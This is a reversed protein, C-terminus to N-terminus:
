HRCLRESDKRRRICLIIGDSEADTFERWMRLPHESLGHIAETYEWNTAFNSNREDDDNGHRCGNTTDLRVVTKKTIAIIVTTTMTM